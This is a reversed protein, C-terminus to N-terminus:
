KQMDLREIRSIGLKGKLIM